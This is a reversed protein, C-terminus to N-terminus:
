LAMSWVEACIGAATLGPGAPAGSGVVQQCQWRWSPAPVTSRRRRRGTGRPARSYAAVTPPGTVGSGCGVPWHVSQWAWIRGAPITSRAEDSRCGMSWAASKVPGTVMPPCVTLPTAASSQEVQWALVPAPQVSPVKWARM